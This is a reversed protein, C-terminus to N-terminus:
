LQTSRQGIWHRHLTKSSPSAVKTAITALQDDAKTHSLSRLVNALIFVVLGLWPQDASETAGLNSVLFQNWQRLLGNYSWIHLTPKAFV